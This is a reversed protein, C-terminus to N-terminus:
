RKRLHYIYETGDTEDIRKFTCEKGNKSLITLTFPRDSPFHMAGFPSHYVQNDATHSFDLTMANDSPQEWTGVCYNVDHGSLSVCDIRIINNQFDWFFRGGVVNPEAEGNVTLELLQWKGFWDGIDGNNRTCGTLFLIAPLLFSLYKYRLKM